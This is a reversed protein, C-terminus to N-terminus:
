ERSCLDKAISGINTMHHRPFPLPHYVPNIGAIISKVLIQHPGPKPTELNDVLEYAGGVKSIIVGKMKKIPESLLKLAEFHVSQRLLSKVDQIFDFGCIYVKLRGQWFRM